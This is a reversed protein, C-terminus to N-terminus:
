VEYKSKKEDKDRFGIGIDKKEEKPQKNTDKRIKSHLSISVM